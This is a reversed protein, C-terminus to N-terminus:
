WIEYGLTQVTLVSIRIQNHIRERPFKTLSKNKHILDSCVILKDFSIKHQKKKRYTELRKFNSM